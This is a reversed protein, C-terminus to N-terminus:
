SPASAPIVPSGAVSGDEAGEATRFPIALTVVVGEGGNSLELRHDPGYLHRLRARTNALGVGERCGGAEDAPLGPGDDRVEIRVRGADARARLEVTGGGHEIANALLNECAQALRARDGRVAAGGAPPELRMPCGFCSSFNRLVDNSRRAM